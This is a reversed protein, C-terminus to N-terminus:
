ICSTSGVLILISPLSESQGGEPEPSGPLQHSSDSLFHTKKLSKPSEGLELQHGMCGAVLLLMLHIWFIKFSLFLPSPSPSILLSVEDPSSLFSTSSLLNSWFVNCALIFNQFLLYHLQQWCYLMAKQIFNLVFNKWWKVQKCYNFDYTM